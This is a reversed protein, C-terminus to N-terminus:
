FCNKIKDYTGLLVENKIKCLIQIISNKQTSKSKHLKKQDQKQDM